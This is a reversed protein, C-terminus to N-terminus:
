AVNEGRSVRDLDTAIKKLEAARTPDAPVGDGHQLMRSANACGWVHGLACAKVAYLLARPKDAPRRGEDGQLHLVSLNFCANRFQGDDCGQQFRQAAIDGDRPQAPTGRQWMLGANNCGEASGLSCAKDFLSRASDETASGTARGSLHVAALNFCSPGYARECLQEYWRQAAALDKLVGQAATPTTPDPRKQTQSV